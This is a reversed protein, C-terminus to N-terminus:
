YTNEEMLRGLFPIYPLGTLSFNKRRGDKDLITMGLPFLSVSKIQSNSELNLRSSKTIRNETAEYFALSSITYPYRSDAYLSIVYTCGNDMKVTIERKKGDTAYSDETELDRIYSFGLSTPERMPLREGYVYNISSTCSACAFVIIVFLRKM